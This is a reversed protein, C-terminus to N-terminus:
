ADLSSNTFCNRLWRKVSQNKFKRWRYRLRISLLHQKSRSGDLTTEFQGTCSAQQVIPRRPWFHPAGIEEDMKRMLSDVPLNVTNRNLWELRRRAISGDIIFGETTTMRRPILASPHELFGKPLRTDAGGLFILYGPPLAVEARAIALMAERFNGSLLVDDEFVLVRNLGEEVMKKWVAIHKLVLSKESLKLSGPSFITLDEDQLDPIDCDFVFEFSIHHKGLETEIHSIRDFFSRVSLVFVRDIGPLASM